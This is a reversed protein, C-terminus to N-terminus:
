ATESRRCYEVSYEVQRPFFFTLFLRFVFFLFISSSFRVQEVAQTSGERMKGRLEGDCLFVFGLPFVSVCRPLLSAHWRRFCCAMALSGALLL